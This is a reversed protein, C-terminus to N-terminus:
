RNNHSKHINQHHKSQSQQQYLPISKIKCVHINDKYKKQHVTSFMFKKKGAFRIGHCSEFM